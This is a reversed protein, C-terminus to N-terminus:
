ILIVESARDETFFHIKTQKPVRRKRLVSRVIDLSRDGDLLALDIYCNQHGTAGGLSIGSAEAELAAILDDEIEGRGTVEEGKPFYQTPIAVFVLDVGLDPLPHECPGEADFYDSLLRFFRSSGAVTDSRLWENEQEKLQYSSYTDTPTFKKWGHDRQADQIVDRLEAIPIAKKLQDESFKIEGIWNQTGHEGLLEDLMLFLAMFRAREPLRQISPHWVSIDIKEADQDLYPVIWFEIPKFTEGDKELHLTIGNFSDSPQRSAYFTWGDLKPAQSLWYEAVFQKALVGEGSLTLSHGTNNEGPGYVWAMGPLWRDIAQSTEPQLEACKKDEITAYFRDASAAFWDWFWAVREKLTLVPMDSPLVPM